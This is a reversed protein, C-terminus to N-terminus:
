KEENTLSITESRFMFGMGGPGAFVNRTLPVTVSEYGDKAITITKANVSINLRCPTTCSNDSSTATAHSPNTDVAVTCQVNYRIDRDTARDFSVGSRLGACGRERSACSSLFVMVAILIGAAIRWGLNPRKM